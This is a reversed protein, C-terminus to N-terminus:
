PAAQCMLSASRETTAATWWFTSVYVIGFKDTYKQRSPMLALAFLAHHLMLVYEYLHLMSLLYIDVLGRPAEIHINFRPQQIHRSCLRCTIILQVCM